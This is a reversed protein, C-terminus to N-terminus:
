PRSLVGGTLPAAVGTTGPFTLPLSKLSRAALYAFAQAEIFDAALGVAEAPAVPVDLRAALAAMLAPNRAGGGAVLWLLPRAPLYVEARAVAAATFAALTAAADPTSLDAVLAAAGAFDGRDLSKPPPASFYPHDLLRGLVREDVRGTTAFAGDRDFAAGTRRQMLDDILANGPGTDFALLTDDAGVFTVNGVGGLNLIALPRALGAYHALARHYVPVLPAGQGGAAVDAARLDHVVSIGLWRALAPGDGIQITLRRQPRHVVTQGHFGIADVDGPAIDQEALFTAIAEGHAATVIREAEAVVGPRAGRDSLQAAAELAARLVERESASYPRSAAPGFGLIAEGDTELLAVDVGDMSTGSMTGIVRMAAGRAPSIRRRVQYM